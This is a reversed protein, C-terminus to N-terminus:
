FVTAYYEFLWAIKQKNNFVHPGTVRLYSPEILDSQQLIERFIKFIQSKVRSFPFSYIYIASISYM